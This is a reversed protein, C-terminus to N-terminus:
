EYKVEIREVIPTKTNVSTSLNARYQFYRNEPTGPDCTQTCQNWSSWGDPPSTDSGSRFEYVIDTDSDTTQDIEVEQADAESGFDKIKTIMYGDSKYTTGYTLSYSDIEPTSTGDSSLDFIATVDQGASIKEWTGNGVTIIGSGSTNARATISGGNLSGYYTIKVSRVDNSTSFTNMYRGSEKYGSSFNDRETTSVSLNDTAKISYNYTTTEDADFAPSIWTGSQITGNENNVIKTTGEWVTFNVSQLNRDDAEAQIEVTDGLSPNSNNLQYSTINPKDNMRFEDDATYSSCAGFEDCVRLRYYYTTNDQLNVNQGLAMDAATSDVENDKTTPNESEATYATITMSDGDPDDEGSWQVSVPETEFSGLDTFSSPETPPNNPVTNQDLSSNAWAMGDYFRVSTTVSEGVEVGSLSNSLNRVCSAEESNGYSTDLNADLLGSAGDPEEYYVKCSQFDGDGDTDNAYAEVEFEHNTTYNTYYQQDPDMEPVYNTTFSFTSSSTTASGDDAEAYWSYTTGYNLNDWNLSTRSGNAVNENYAILNDSGDYFSVNMSDGDPDEVYVGISVSTDLGTSGDAPDPNIPADPAQNVTGEITLNTAAPVSVNFETVQEETKEKSGNFYVVYTRSSNLGEFKTESSTNYHYKASQGLDTFNHEWVAVEVINTSSTTVNTYSMNVTRDYVTVQSFNLDQSMNYYSNSKTPDLVTGKELTVTALVSSLMFLLSLVLVAKRHRM